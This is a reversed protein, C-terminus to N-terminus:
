FDTYVSILVLYFIISPEEFAIGGFNSTLEIIHRKLTNEM